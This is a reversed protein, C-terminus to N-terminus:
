GIRREAPAPELEPMLIRMLHPGSSEPSYSQWEHIQRDDAVARWLVDGALRHDSCTARGRMFVQNRHSSISTMEIHFDPALRMFRRMAELANTRGDVAEGTSDIVRFDEAMMGAMAELNKANCASCYRRVTRVPGSERFFIAM